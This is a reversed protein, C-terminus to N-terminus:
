DELDVYRMPFAVLFGHEDHAPKCVTGQQPPVHFGTAGPMGYEEGVQQALERIKDYDRQRHAERLERLVALDEVQFGYDITPPYMIGLMGMM